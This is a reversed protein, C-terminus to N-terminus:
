KVEWFWIEKSYGYNETYGLWSFWEILWKASTRYGNWVDIHDGTPQKEGTRRWYDKFFIIGTKGFLEKHFNKPDQVKIVKGLGNINARNLGNALEQAVLVYMDEKSHYWSVRPSGIQAYTVGAERLSVGMRIACQNAFSPSGKKVTKGGLVVDKLMRAPSQEANNLPHGNWLDEFKLTFEAQANATPLVAFITTAIICAFLKAVTPANMNKEGSSM